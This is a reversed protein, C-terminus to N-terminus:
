SLFLYLLFLISLTILINRFFIKSERKRYTLWDEYISPNCSICVTQIKEDKLFFLSAVIAWKWPLLFNFISFTGIIEGSLDEELHISVSDCINCYHKEGKKFRGVTEKLRIIDDASLTLDTKSNNPIVDTKNRKNSIAVIVAAVVIIGFLIFILEM